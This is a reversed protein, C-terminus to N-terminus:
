SPHHGTLLPLPLPSALRPVRGMADITVQSNVGRGTASDKHLTQLQKTEQFM